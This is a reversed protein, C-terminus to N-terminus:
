EAHHSDDQKLKLLEEKLRKNENDCVTFQARAEAIELHAKTLQESLAMSKYFFLEEKETLQQKQEM